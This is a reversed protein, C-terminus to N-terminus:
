TLPAEISLEVTKLVTSLDITGLHRGGARVEESVESGYIQRHLMDM